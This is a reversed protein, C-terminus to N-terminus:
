TTQFDNLGYRRLEGRLRGLAAAVRSKVTSPPLGLVEATQQFTLEGYHRLVLPERLEDPLAALAASVLRLAEEREVQQAPTPSAAPQCNEDVRVPMQRKRRRAADRTASLVIRYLLTSFAWQPRYREAARVVRLFVEQRLDDADAAQGSLRGLMRRVPADWRALLADMAATDGRRYREVLANDTAANDTDGDTDRDDIDPDTEPM